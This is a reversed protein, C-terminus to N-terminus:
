HHPKSEPLKPRVLRNVPILGEATSKVLNDTRPPSWSHPRDVYQVGISQLWKTPPNGGILAFVVDNPITEKREDAKHTVSASDATVEAVATAFLPICRGDAIATEILKLNKPKIGELRAGRSSFWVKNRNCLALVVEVASDSGGVVLVNKGTWEDPDVLSNKVKNLEEGACGLRRPQGLTGIALVVRAGTISGVPKGGTDGLSVKFRQGDPKVDIVNQQYRIDVNHQTILSQWAGLLEERSTDWHPLVSELGVDNPEAMVPKGKHYYNRITWSFEREKELVIYSLGFEVCALAASLGAPGSGVIIIDTDAGVQKGIGGKVGQKAIRQIVAQGLNAANKVQPTGSAQGIVYLGPVPSEHFADLDPMPIMPPPKDAEHMRLADFACANECKKCQICADFNVVRSKHDVLELVSAPCAQVCLSCGVCKSDNISHILRKVVEAPHARLEAVLNESEKRRRLRGFALLALLPAGGVLGLAAAVGLSRVPTPTPIAAAIMPGTEPKLPTAGPHQTGHCDACGSKLHEEGGSHCRFCSLGPVAETFAVGGSGDGKAHCDTCGIAIMKGDSGKVMAHKTHLALTDLKDKPLPDAAIRMPVPATSAFDAKHQDKHCGACAKTAGLAIVPGDGHKPGQHENHCGGCDFTHGKTHAAFGNHCGICKETAVQAGATHCAGCITLGTRHSSTSFEVSAHVQSLPHNVLAAGRNQIFLFVTVLVAGMMAMMAATRTTRNQAIDSSPRWAPAGKRLDKKRKAVQIEVQEEAMFMVTKLAGPSAFKPGGTSAAASQNAAAGAVMTGPMSAGMPARILKEANARAVDVVAHASLADVSEITCLDGRIEIRVIADGLRLVGNPPLIQRAVRRDDLYTGYASRDAVVFGNEWEIACHERSVGNGDLILDCSPARGIVIRPATVVRGDLVFRGVSIDTALVVADDQRQASAQNGARLRFEAVQGGFAILDGPRLTTGETIRTGNVMTGNSTNLDTAVVQDGNRTIACHVSSVRPDTLIVNCDSRRGIVVQGDGLAIVQGRLDGGVFHLEAPALDEPTAVDASAEQNWAEDNSGEIDVIFRLTSGGITLEDGHALIRGDGPQGNVSLPAKAAIKFGMPSAIVDLHHPAVTPSEVVLECDTGSGVRVSGLLDIERGVQGGGVIILRARAYNVKFAIDGLQVKDGNSLFIVAARDQVRKVVEGNFRMEGTGLLELAYGGRVSRSLVIHRRSVTPHALVLDNTDPERGIRITAAATAVRTGALAGTELEIHLIM